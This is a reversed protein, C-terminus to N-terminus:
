RKLRILFHLARFLSIRKSWLSWGAHKVGSELPRPILLCVKNPTLSCMAGHDCPCTRHYVSGCWGKCPYQLHHAVQGRLLRAHPSSLACFKWSLSRVGHISPHWESFAGPPESRSTLICWPDDVLPSEPCVHGMGRQVESQSLVRDGPYEAHVHWAGNRSAGVNDLSSRHGTLFWRFVLDRRYLQHPAGRLVLGAHVLSRSLKSRAELRAAAVRPLHEAM